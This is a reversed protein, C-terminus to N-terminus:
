EATQKIKEYSAVRNRGRQKAGVYMARDAHRTLELLDECNEPYSAVGISASIFVEVPEEIHLIHDHIIFPSSTIMEKMEEAAKLAESSPYDPLLIVFEEGGYRAVVGSPGIIAELRNALECLIENGAEHGYDDNVLKFHDIDLLIQSVPRHKEERRWEEAIMQLYNEFYRYNYLSTLPCRESETKTKEYHRANEIAVALYSGLINLIMYQYKFFARPQTSYMTIIGVTKNQRTIPISMVSEVNEPTYINELQKWKKRTHYHKGKGQKLTDVSISKGEVLDLEPLQVNEIRDFFRVLTMTNDSKVDFIYLYDLPLLSTVREVFVDLVEKVGLKGTLEHGIDGTKQLYQNVQSTKHFQRLMISILLFPFGILYIASPGIETYVFYLMLGVPAVLATTLLEWKVGQDVWKVKRRYLYRGILKLSVQNIVIQTLAYAMVPVADAGSQLANEGHSGGLSYFVGATILSIILFMLMNLPIRIFNTKGVRLKIMLFILSVQIVLIEVLLGFFLFAAFSVGNTLFVPHDGMLLPFIAVISALIMFGIIDIKYDFIPFSTNAFVMYLTLPWVAVWIGYITLKKKLSIM